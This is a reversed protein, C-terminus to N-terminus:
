PQWSTVSHSYPKKLQAPSPESANTAMYRLLASCEATLAELSYAAAAATSLGASSTNYSSRLSKVGHRLRKLQEQIHDILVETDLVDTPSVTYKQAM